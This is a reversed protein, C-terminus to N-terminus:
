WCCFGFSFWISTGQRMGTYHQMLVYPMFAEWDLYNNLNGYTMNAKIKSLFTSNAPITGDSLANKNVIEYDENGGGFYSRFWHDSLQERLHYM